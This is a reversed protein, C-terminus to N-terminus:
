RGALWDLTTKWKIMQKEAEAMAEDLPAEQVLEETVEAMGDESLKGAGMETGSETRRDQAVERGRDRSGPAGQLATDSLRSNRRRHRRRQRRDGRLALVDPVDLPGDRDV